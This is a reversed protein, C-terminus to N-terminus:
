GTTHDDSHSRIARCRRPGPVCRCLSSWIWICSVPVIINILTSQINFGQCFLIWNPSWSQSHPHSPGWPVLVDIPVTFFCIWICLVPSVCYLQIYIFDVPGTLIDSVPVVINILTYTFGLVKVFCYGTPHDAGYRHIVQYRSPWSMWLCLSSWTIKMHM